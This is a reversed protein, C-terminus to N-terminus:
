RDRGFSPDCLAASLLLLVFGVIAGAVTSGTLVGFLVGAAACAAFAFFSSGTINNPEGDYSMICGKLRLSM